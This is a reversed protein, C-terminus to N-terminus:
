IWMMTSLRDPHGPPLLDEDLLAILENESVPPTNINQQTHASNFHEFNHDHSKPLQSHDLDMPITLSDPRPRQTLINRRRSDQYHNSLPLLNIDTEMDNNLWLNPLINGDSSQSPISAASHPDTYQSSDPLSCVRTPHLSINGLVTGPVSRQASNANLGSGTSMALLTHALTKLTMPDRECELQKVTKILNTTHKEWLLTPWCEIAGFRSKMLGTWINKMNPEKLIAHVMNSYNWDELGHKHEKFHDSVHDIWNAFNPLCCGCYGCGMRVINRFSTIHSSQKPNTGHSQEQHTNFDLSDVPFSLMCIDCQIKQEALHKERQHRKWSGKYNFSRDCDICYHQTIPATTRSPTQPLPSVSASNENGYTVQSPFTPPASTPTSFNSAYSSRNSSFHSGPALSTDSYASIDTNTSSLYLLKPNSFLSGNSSISADSVPRTCPVCAQVPNTTHHPSSNQDEQFRLVFFFHMLEDHPYLALAKFDDLYGGSALHLGIKIHDPHLDKLAELHHALGPPIKTAELNEM